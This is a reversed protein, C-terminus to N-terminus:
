EREREVRKERERERGGREKREHRSKEKRELFFLQIAFAGTASAPLAM